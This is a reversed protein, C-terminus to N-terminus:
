LRWEKPPSRHDEDRDLLINFCLPHVEIHERSMAQNIMQQLYLMNICANDLLLENTLLLSFGVTDWPYKWGHGELWEICRKVAEHM